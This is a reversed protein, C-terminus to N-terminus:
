HCSRLSISTSFRALVALSLEMVFPSKLPVGSPFNSMGDSSDMLFYMDTLVSMAIVPRCDSMLTTWSYNVEATAVICCDRLKCSSRSLATSSEAIAALSVSTLRSVVTACSWFSASVKDKFHKYRSLLDLLFLMLSIPILSPFSPLWGVSNIDLKRWSRNFKSSFGSGM